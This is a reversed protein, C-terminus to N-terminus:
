TLVVGRWSGGDYAYWKHNTSDYILPVRGTAATPTGTPTGACSPIYLFGDTANTALAATGILVSGAGTIRMREAPTGANITSFRLFATANAVSNWSASGEAQISAMALFTNTGTEKSNFNIGAGYGINTRLLMTTALIGMGNAGSNDVVLANTAAKTITTVDSIGLTGTITSAGTAALGGASAVLGARATVVGADTVLLNNLTNANNRVAFSTSGPIIVSVATGSLVLTGDDIWTVNTPNVVLTTVSVLRNRSVEVGTSAATFRFGVTAGDITNDYITGVNGTSAVQIGNNSTDSANQVGKIVNNAVRFGTVNTSIVIGNGCPSLITNNGVTLVDIYNLQIAGFLGSKVVANANRITNGTITVNTISNGSGGQVTIGMNGTSGSTDAGATSTGTMVNGVIDLDSVTDSSIYPNVSIPILCDNIINGAIKVRQGSHVLIGQADVYNHITNGEIKIDNCIPFTASGPSPNDTGDRSDLGIAVVFTTDDALSGNITNNRIAGRSVGTFRIANIVDTIMSREVTVDGCNQILIAPWRYGTISVDDIKVSSSADTVKIASNATAATDGASGAGIFHLGSIVLPSVPGDIWFSDTGVAAQKITGPGFIYLPINLSWDLAGLKYTGVPFFLAVAGSDISAQVAFTDDATADGKAGYARVDTWPHLGRLFLNGVMAVTAAPPAGGVFAASAVPAGSPLVTASPSFGGGQAVAPGFQQPLYISNDIQRTAERKM